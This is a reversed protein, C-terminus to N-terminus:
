RGRRPARRVFTSGSQLWRGFGTTTILNSPDKGRVARDRRSRDFEARCEPAAHFHDFTELGPFAHHHGADSKEALSHLHSVQAVCQSVADHVGSNQRDLVVSHDEDGHCHHQHPAHDGIELQTPQFIGFEGDLLRQDDGGIRSGTGFLHCQLDGVRDFAGALLQPLEFPDLRLRQPAARDDLRHNPITVVPIQDWLDPILQSALDGIHLRCQGRRHAALRDHDVIEAVHIADEERYGTLAKGVRFQSAIRLKKTALQHQDVVDLLDLQERLLTFLHKQLNGSLSQGSQADVFILDITQKLRLINGGVTTPDAHALLM